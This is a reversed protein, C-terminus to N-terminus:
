AGQVTHQSFAQEGLEGLDKGGQVDGGDEAPFYTTKDEVTHIPFKWTSVTGNVDLEITYWLKGGAYHLLKAMQKTKLLQKKIEIESIPYTANEM